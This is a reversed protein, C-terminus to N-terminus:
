GYIDEEKIQLQLIPKFRDEVRYFVSRGARESKLIDESKLETLHYSVTSKDRNLRKELEKPRAGRIDDSLLINKLIAQQAGTLNQVTESASKLNLESAASEISKQSFLKYDNLFSEKMSKLLIRRILEPVGRTYERLLEKSASSPKEAEIVEDFLDDVFKRTGAESFNKLYIEDSVGVEEEVKERKVKWREPSWTTLILGEDVASDIESISFVSRKDKGLNDVLVVIKESESIESLAKNFLFGEEDKKHFEEADLYKVDLEQGMESILSSLSKLIQTKGSGSVGQISIHHKDGESELYGAHEGIKSLPKKREVLKNPNQEYFDTLNKRSLDAEELNSKELWAEYNSLKGKKGQTFGEIFDNAPM